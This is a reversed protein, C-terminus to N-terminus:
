PLVTGRALLPAFREAFRDPEDAYASAGFLAAELERIRAILALTVPPSNAAIFAKNSWSVVIEPEDTERADLNAFLVVQGDHVGELTCGDWRWEDQDAAEAKAELKELDVKESM